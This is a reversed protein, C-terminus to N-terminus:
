EEILSEDIPLSVCFTTGEGLKSTVKITGGHNKAIWKAISLGLGFGSGKKRNRSKEGRYFRDFIFPIDEEAIGPGTDQVCFRAVNNERFLRLNVSGGNPTYQIANAALNLFLQKIRDRDGVIQIQDIELINLQKNEGALIHMQQFIELLITDLELPKRQMPVEGADAQALLLLDGVLRTLRDVEAEISRLSEEDLEKERRMLSVNGKIVTLPTRLEHSVDALFRGQSTFLNELRELTDNFALILNGVEDDPPNDEPIRRMLDDAKTIRTALNTVKSLPSLARSTVLWTALASMLMTLFALLLLITSLIQQILEVLYLNIGLQLVGVPTRETRIPVSLVRLNTGNIDSTTFIPEGEGRGNEDLAIDINGPRAIQLTGDHSWFQFYLNEPVPIRRFLRLDIQDVNNVRLEEILNNAEATLSRDIQDQLFISVLSYALSGYILLVGGMLATYLLTLRFRLTM